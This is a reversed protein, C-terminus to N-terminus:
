LKSDILLLAKQAANKEAEQKSAGVGKAWLENKVFVGVTYIKKHDPGEQSIIEYDPSIKFKEQIEEQLRSKADKLQNKKIKEEIDQLFLEEVFKSAAELGQDLYVGGILAELTDALISKSNKGGSEEEGKSLRLYKGLDLKKAAQYLSDTNTIVSRLNTLQGENMNQYKDFIYSSVIFSLISDGLFEIRENSQINEKTENLYSRHTFVQEFLNSNKFIPIKM